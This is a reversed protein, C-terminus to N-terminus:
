CILNPCLQPKTWDTHCTESYVSANMDVIFADTMVISFVDM